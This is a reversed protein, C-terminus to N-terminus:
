PAPSAGSILRNDPRNEPILPSSASSAVVSTAESSARTPAEECAAHSPLEFPAVRPLSTGTEEALRLMDDRLRSALHLVLDARMRTLTMDPRM